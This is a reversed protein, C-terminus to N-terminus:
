CLDVLYEDLIALTGYVGANSAAAGGYALYDAISINGKYLPPPTACLILQVRYKDIHTKIYASFTKIKASYNRWWIRFVAPFDTM